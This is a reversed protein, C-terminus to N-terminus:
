LKNMAFALGIFLVLLLIPISFVLLLLPSHLMKKSFHTRFIFRTLALVALAAGTAMVTFVFVDDNDAANGAEGDGMTMMSISGYNWLSFIGTLVLLIEYSWVISTKPKEASKGPVAENVENAM